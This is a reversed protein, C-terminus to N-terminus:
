EFPCSVWSSILPKRHRWGRLFSRLGENSFRFINKRREMRLLTQRIEYAKKVSFISFTSDYSTEKYWIEARVLESGINEKLEVRTFGCFM